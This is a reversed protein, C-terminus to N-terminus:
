LFINYVLDGWVWFRPGKTRTESNSPTNSRIKNEVIMDDM